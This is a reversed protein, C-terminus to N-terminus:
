CGWLKVFISQLHIIKEFKLEPCCYRKFSLFIEKLIPQNLIRFKDSSFVWGSCLYETVFTPVIIMLKFDSLNKDM